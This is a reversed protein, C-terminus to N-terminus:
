KASKLSELFQPEFLRVRSEIFAKGVSNAQRYSDILAGKLDARHLLILRIDGAALDRLDSSNDLANSSVVTALRLRVIGV